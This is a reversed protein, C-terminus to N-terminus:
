NVPRGLLFSMGFICGSIIVGDDLPEDACCLLRFPSPCRIKREQPVPCTNPQVTDDDEERARLAHPPVSSHFCGATAGAAKKAVSPALNGGVATAGPDLALAFGPLSNVPSGASKSDMSPLLFESQSGVLSFMSKEPDSTSLGSPSEMSHENQDDHNFAAAFDTSYYIPLAVSSDPNIPPSFGSSYEVPLSALNESSADNFLIASDGEQQPFGFGSPLASVIVVTFPAVIVLSLFFRM